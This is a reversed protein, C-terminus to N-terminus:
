LNKFKENADSAKQRRADTQEQARAADRGQRDHVDSAAQNARAIWTDILEIWAPVEEESARFTLAAREFKVSRPTAGASSADATQFSHQWDASPPADLPVRWTKSDHTTPPGSRTIAM